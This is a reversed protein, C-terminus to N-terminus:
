SARPQDQPNKRQSYSAQTHIRPASQAVVPLQAMQELGREFHACDAREPRSQKESQSNKRRANAPSYCQKHRSQEKKRHRHSARERGQLQDEWILRAAQNGGEEHERNPHSPLDQPGEQGSNKVIIEESVSVHHTVRKRQRNSNRRDYPRNGESGGVS